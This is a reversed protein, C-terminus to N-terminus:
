WGGCVLHKPLPTKRRMTFPITATSHGPQGDFFIIKGELRNGQDHITMTLAGTGFKLPLKVTTEGGLRGVRLGQGTGSSNEYFGSMTIKKNRETITVPARYAPAGETFGTDPSYMFDTNSRYEWEGTLPCNGADPNSSQPTISGTPDIFESRLADVGPEEPFPPIDSDETPTETGVDQSILIKSPEPETASAIESIIPFSLLIVSLPAITLSSLYHM